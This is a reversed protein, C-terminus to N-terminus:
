AKAQASETTRIPLPRVTGNKKPKLDDLERLVERHNNELNDGLKVLTTNLIGNSELTKEQMELLKTSHGNVLSLIASDKEQKIQDDKEQRKKFYGWFVWLIFLLVGALVSQKMVEPLIQTILEM